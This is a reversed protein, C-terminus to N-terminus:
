SKLIDVLNPNIINQEVRDWVRDEIEEAARNTIQSVTKLIKHQSLESYEGSELAEVARKIYEFEQRTM